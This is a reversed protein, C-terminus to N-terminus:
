PGLAGTEPVRSAAPQPRRFDFTGHWYGDKGVWAMELPVIFRRRKNTARIEGASRRGVPKVPRLGTERNQAFSPQSADPPPGPPPGPPVRGM